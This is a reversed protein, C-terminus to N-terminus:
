IDAPKQKFTIHHKAKSPKPDPDDRGHVLDEAVAAWKTPTRKREPDRKQEKDRLHAAHGEVKNGWDTPFQM